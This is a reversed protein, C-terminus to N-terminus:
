FYSVCLWAYLSVFIYSLYFAIYYSAISLAMSLAMALMFRLSQSKLNKLVPWVCTLLLGFSVTGPIMFKRVGSSWGLLGNLWLISVPWILLVLSLVAAGLAARRWYFHGTGPTSAKDMM